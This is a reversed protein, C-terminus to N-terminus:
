ILFKTKDLQPSSVQTLLQSQIHSFEDDNLGMLFQHSQDEKYLKILKQAAGCTCGKCTCTSVKVYNNMENWLIMLKNYFEGIDLTGQKCNAVAAKLQHIRLLNAVSYRKKLDEWIGHAMEIYAVTLCLMPDIINLLWSCLMSNILDWADTESFEQDTTKELLTLTGEIFGLKNKAKLATWIARQM